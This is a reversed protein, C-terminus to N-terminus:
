GNTARLLLSIRSCPQSMLRCPERRSRSISCWRRGSKARAVAWNRWTWWAAACEILRAPASSQLEDTSRTWYPQQGTVTLRAPSPFSRPVSKQRLPRWCFVASLFEEAMLVVTQGRALPLNAAAVAMGYSVAPIIAIDDATAGILQAFLNRTSETEDFFASSPLTWPTSKRHLGETGAKAASRMLPSMYACNLYAVDRPISFLHRQSPLPQGRYSLDKSPTM